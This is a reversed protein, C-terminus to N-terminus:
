HRIKVGRGMWVACQDQRPVVGHNSVEVVMSLAISLSDYAVRVTAACKVTQRHLLPAKFPQFKFFM